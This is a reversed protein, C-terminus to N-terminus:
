KTSVDRAIRFGTYKDAAGSHVSATLVTCNEMLTKHSGGLAVLRRGTDFALEQANGVSNVLGWGNQKGTFIKVLAGGKKIGRSILQCNRNPDLTSRKSKSAYVWEKKTPLRYKKKTKKSLWKLYASITSMKVNTAPLDKEMNSNQVNCKSSVKCFDALETMSTEYKGIAFAKINGNGPIVVLAPGDLGEKLKDRCTAREGRAGLGAISLGCADREKIIIAMLAPNNKFIRLAYQKSDIAHEPFTKGITSICRALQTSLKNELKSYRKFDISKLKGIAINLDRM